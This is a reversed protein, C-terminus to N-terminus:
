GPNSYPANTQYTLSRRRTTSSTAIRGTPTSKSKTKKKFVENMNADKATDTEADADAYDVAHHLEQRKSMNIHM